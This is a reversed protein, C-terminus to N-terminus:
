YDDNWVLESDTQRLTKVLSAWEGELWKLAIDTEADENEDHTTDEKDEAAGGKTEIEQGVIKREAGSKLHKSVSSDPELRLLQGLHQKESAWLPYRFTSYFKAITVKLFLHRRALSWQQQLSLTSLQSQSQSLSYAKILLRVAIDAGTKLVRV